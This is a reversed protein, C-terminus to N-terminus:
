SEGEQFSRTGSVSIRVDAAHATGFGLDVIIPNLEASLVRGDEVLRILARAMARIDELVEPARDILYRGFPEARIVADITDARAPGISVGDLVEVAVGGPGFLLVPGVEPDVQIGVFVQLEGLLHEEAVVTTALGEAGATVRRYGERVQDKNRLGTAVLGAASKHIMSDVDAKLVLPVGLEHIAEIAETEDQVRRHAGFRVGLGALLDRVQLYSTGIALPKAITGGTAANEPRAPAGGHGDSYRAIAVVARHSGPIMPPGSHTVLKRWTSLGTLPWGSVVVRDRHQELISRMGSWARELVHDDLIHWAVLVRDFAPEAIFETLIPAFEQERGLIEGSPDFPNAGRTLTLREEVISEFGTSVDPMEVRAADALDTILAGEGGSMSMVGLHVKTKPPGWAACLSSLEWLQDLDEAILAGADRLAQEQAKWHGAISGSHTAVAAAGQRSRGAKCIVVSRGSSRATAIMSHWRDIQGLEEILIAIVSYRDDALVYDMVDWITVMAQLGTAVALGVGVGHNQARNFVINNSAGSQSIVAVQGSRVAEPPLMNTAARPVFADSLNILGTTSPGLLAMPNRHLFDDLAARRSVGASGAGGEGFGSAAVIASDIGAEVCDELVPIVRDASVALVACDVPEPIEVVSPFCRLGAVEIRRPNVPFIPGRFDFRLLNHVTDGTFAGLRDTAGVVAVSSPNVLRSLRHIAARM